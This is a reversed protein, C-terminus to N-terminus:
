NDADGRRAQIILAQEQMAELRPQMAEATEQLRLLHPELRQQGDLLRRQLSQAAIGFRRLSGVVRLAILALVILALLVVGGSIWWLVRGVKTWRGRDPLAARRWLASRM